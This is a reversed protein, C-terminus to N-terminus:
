LCLSKTMGAGRSHPKVAMCASISVLFSLKGQALLSVVVTLDNRGFLGNFTVRGAQEAFTPSRRWGAVLCAPFGFNRRKAFIRCNVYLRQEM